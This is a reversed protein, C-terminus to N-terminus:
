FYTASAGRESSIQSAGADNLVKMPEQGHAVV